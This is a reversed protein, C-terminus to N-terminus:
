ILHLFHLLKLISPPKHIQLEEIIKLALGRPLKELIEAHSPNTTTPKGVVTIDRQDPKGNDTFSNGLNKLTCVRIKGASLVKHKPPKHLEKYFIRFIKRLELIKLRSVSTAPGRFLNSSYRGHKKDWDSSRIARVIDEDNSCHEPPM